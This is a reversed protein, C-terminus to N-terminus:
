EDDDDFLKKAKTKKKETAKAPAKQGPMKIDGDDNFLNASKEQKTIKTTAIVEEDDDGFLPLNSKKKSEKKKTAKKPQEEPDGFIDPLNSIQTTPKLEKKTAETSKSSQAPMGLPNSGSSKGPLGMLGLPDKSKSSQKSLKQAQTPEQDDADLSPLPLKNQQPQSKNDPQKEDEADDDGFLNKKKKKDPANKPKSKQAVALDEPEDMISPLKSSPKGMDGFLDNKKPKQAEEARLQEQRQQEELERQKQQQLAM